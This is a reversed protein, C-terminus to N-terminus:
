ENSNIVRMVLFPAGQKNSIETVRLDTDYGQVLIRRGIWAKTESFPRWTPPLTSALLVKVEFAMRDQVGGPVLEQSLTPDGILANTVFTSGVTEALDARCKFIVQRGWDAVIEAADEAMETVIEPRM